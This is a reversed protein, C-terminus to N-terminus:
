NKFAQFSRPFEDEEKRRSFPFLFFSKSYFNELIRRTIVTVKLLNAKVWVSLNPSFTPYIGQEICRRLGELSGHDFRSRPRLCQGGRVGPFCDGSLKLKSTELNEGKARERERERELTIATRTICRVRTAKLRLKEQQRRFLRGNSLHKIWSRRLFSSSFHVISSSSLSIMTSRYSYDKKRQYNNTRFIKRDLFKKKKRKWVTSFLLLPIKRTCAFCRHNFFISRIVLSYIM